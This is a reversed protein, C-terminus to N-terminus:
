LMKEREAILLKLEELDESTAVDRIFSRARGRHSLYKRREPNKDNWRKQAAPDYVAVRKKKENTKEM